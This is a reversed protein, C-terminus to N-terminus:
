ISLRPEGQMMESQCSAAALEIVQQLRGAGEDARGQGARGADLKNNVNRRLQARAERLHGRFEGRFAREAGRRRLTKEVDEFALKFEGDIAAFMQEGGASKRKQRLARGM